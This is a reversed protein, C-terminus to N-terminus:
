TKANNPAENAHPQSLPIRINFTTGSGSDSKVDIEGHHYDEVIRKVLTLGLGWGGKRTTFGPVFIFSLDKRNIGRGNDTVTLVADNGDTALKLRIFGRGDVLSQAANKILNEVVWEMLEPAFQVYLHSPLEIDMQMTSGLAPLRRQCYSYANRVVEVLDHKVFIPEKGIEGFREAIKRLRKIDKDFETIEESKLQREEALALWGMLGSIPTSLQHATERAMGVWIAQQERQRAHRYTLFGILVFILILVLQGLPIWQLLDIVFPPGYHFYAFTEKRIALTHPDQFYRYIAIPKNIRDMRAVMEKLKKTRSEGEPPLQKELQKWYSVPEGATDTVISPFNMTGGLEGIERNLQEGAYSESSSLLSLMIAYASSVRQQQEYIQDSVYWSILFLMLGIIVIGIFVYAEFIGRPLFKINPKMDKYRRWIQAYNLSLM